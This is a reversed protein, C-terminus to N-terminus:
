REQNSDFGSFFFQRAVLFVISLAMRLVNSLIESFFVISFFIILDNQLFIM